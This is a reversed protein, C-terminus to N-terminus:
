LREVLTVPDDARTEDVVKRIPRGRVHGAEMRELELRQALLVEHAHAPELVPLVRQLAVVPEAAAVARVATRGPRVRLDREHHGVRLLAAADARDEQLMEGRSSPLTM